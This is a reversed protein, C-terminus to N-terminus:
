SYNLLGFQWESYIPVRNYFIYKTTFKGYTPDAIFIFYGKELPVECYWIYHPMDRTLIENIIDRIMGGLNPNSLVSTKLFRKMDRNDALFFRTKEVFSFRDEELQRLMPTNKYMHFFINKIDDYLIYVKEHIPYIIFSKGAKVHPKLNEWLVSGVFGNIAFVTKLFYGSDDYIIYAERNQQTHGIIQIVHRQIKEDKDKIEIGLMVPIGSEVTYDIYQRYQEFQQQIKIEDKEDGLLFACHGVSINHHDFIELMQMPNLGTTPFLKTKGLSFSKNLDLVRVRNYDFKHHLYQTMSIMNVHACAVTINDQVFLPYTYFEIENGKIHVKKKFTMVCLPQADYYVKAWNPYIYSLMIKAEDIKRLTFFGLYSEKSIEEKWFIHVRMVTGQVHYSTNIYHVSIMDKWETEVYSEEFVFYRDARNSRGHLFGLRPWIFDRVEKRLESKNISVIRYIENVLNTRNFKAIKDIQLSM